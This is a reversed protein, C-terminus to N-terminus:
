PKPNHQTLLAGMRQTFQPYRYEILPEFFIPFTIPELRRLGLLWCPMVPVTVMQGPVWLLKEVDLTAAIPAALLTRLLQRRTLPPM